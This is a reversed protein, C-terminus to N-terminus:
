RVLNLALSHALFLSPSVTPPHVLVVCRRSALFHPWLSEFEWGVSRSDSASGNRWLGESFITCQFVGPLQVDRGSVM